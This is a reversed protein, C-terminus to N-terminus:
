LSKKEKRERKREKEKEREREREREREKRDRGKYSLTNMKIHKEGTIDFTRINREKDHHTNGEICDLTWQQINWSNYKDKRRRNKRGEKREEGQPIYAIIYAETKM